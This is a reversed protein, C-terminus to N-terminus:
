CMLVLKWKLTSIIILFSSWLRAVHRIWDRKCLDVATTTVDRLSISPFSDNSDKRRKVWCGPPHHKWMLLHLKDLREGSFLTMMKTVKNEFYHLGKEQWGCTMGETKKDSWKSFSFLLIFCDIKSVIQERIRPTERRRRRSLAKKGWVSLCRFSKFEIFICHLHCSRITQWTM